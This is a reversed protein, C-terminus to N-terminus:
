VLGVKALEAYLVKIAKEYKPIANFQSFFAQAKQLADREANFHYLDISKNGSIQSLNVALASIFPAIPMQGVWTKFFTSRLKLPIKPVIRKFEALNDSLETYFEIDRLDHELREGQDKQQSLPKGSQDYGPIRYKKGPLGTYPMSEVGGYGDPIAKIAALHTQMMHQMEHRM